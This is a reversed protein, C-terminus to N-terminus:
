NDPIIDRRLRWANGRPQKEEEDRESYKLAANGRVDDMALCAIGSILIQVPMFLM